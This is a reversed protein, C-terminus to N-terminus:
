LLIDTSDRGCANVRAVITIPFWCEALLNVSVVFRFVGPSLTWPRRPTLLWSPTSKAFCVSFHLSRKRISTHKKDM